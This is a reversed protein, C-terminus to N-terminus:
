SSKTERASEIILRGFPTKGRQTSAAPGAADTTNPDAKRRLALMDWKSLRVESVNATKLPIDQSQPANGDQTLRKTTSSARFAEFPTGNIELYYKSDDKGQPELYLNLQYMGSELVEIRRNDDFIAFVASPAADQQVESPANEVRTRNERITWQVVQEDESFAVPPAFLSLFGHVSPSVPTVPAVVVAESPQTPQPTPTRIMDEEQSAAPATEMKSQISASVEAVGSSRRRRKAAPQKPVVDVPLPIGRRAESETAGAKQKEAEGDGRESGSSAEKRPQPDLEDLGQRLQRRVRGKGKRNVYLKWRRTNKLFEWCPQSAFPTQKSHQEVYRAHAVKLLEDRTKTDMDVSSSSSGNSAERQAQSYIDGFKALTAQLASWRSQLSQYSRFAADESAVPTTSVADINVNGVNFHACVREWFSTTADKEGDEELPTSSDIGQVDQESVHLWSACLRLDEDAHFNKGRARRKASVPAASARPPARQHADPAASTAM